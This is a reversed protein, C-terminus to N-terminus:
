QFTCYNSGKYLPVFDEKGQNKKNYYAILDSFAIRKDAIKFNVDHFYRSQHYNLTGDNSYPTVLIGGNYIEDEWWYNHKHTTFQIKVGKKCLSYRNIITLLLKVVM